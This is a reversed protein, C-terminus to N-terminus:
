SYKGSGMDPYSGESGIEHGTMKKFDEGFHKNLFEKPFIKRRM